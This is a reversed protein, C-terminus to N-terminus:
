LHRVPLCCPSHRWAPMSVYWASNSAPGGATRRSAAAALWKPGMPQLRSPSGFCKSRLDQSPRDRPM